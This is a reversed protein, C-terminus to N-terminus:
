STEFLFLYNVEGFPSFITVLEGTKVNENLDYVYFVHLNLPIEDKGAFNFYSDSKLM